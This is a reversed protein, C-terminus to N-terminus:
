LCSDFAPFSVFNLFLLFELASIYTSGEEQVLRYCMHSTLNASHSYYWPGDLGTNGNCYLRYKSPVRTIGLKFITNILNITLPSLFSCLSLPLHSSSSSFPSSSFITHERRGKRRIRERKREGEKIEERKGARMDENKELV